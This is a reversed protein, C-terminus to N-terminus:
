GFPHKLDFLLDCLAAKLVVSLGDSSAQTGELDSFLIGFGRHPSLQDGSNLNLSLKKIRYFQLDTVM